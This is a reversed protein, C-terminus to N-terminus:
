KKIKKRNYIRKKAQIRSYEKNYLNRKDRLLYYYYYYYYYFQVCTQLKLIFLIKNVTQTDFM